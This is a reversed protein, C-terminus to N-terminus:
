RAKGSRREFLTSRIGALCRYSMAIRYLFDGPDLVVDWLRYEQYPHPVKRDPMFVRKSRAIGFFSLVVFDIARYVSEHTRYGGYRNQGLDWM